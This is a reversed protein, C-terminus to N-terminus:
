KKQKSILKSNKSGKTETRPHRLTGIAKGRSQKYLEPHLYYGKEKDKKPEEVIIRNAEAWLDKRIGTVQWSIKISAAAGAITFRGNKLEDRVHLNPAATGVATLQYTFDRNVADFWKPLQVVAEGKKNTVAIGDYFNKMDPSEVFSHNLFKKAPDLPHDIKFGGGGKSIKGTVTVGGTFWAACCDSALYAANSNNPNFAAVGANPGEGLVGFNYGSQCIGQVGVNTDSAGLVGIGDGSQANVAWGDNSTARVGIGQGICNAAIAAGGVSGASIGIKGSCLLGTGSDSHSEIGNAGNTGNATVAPVAAANSDFIGNM